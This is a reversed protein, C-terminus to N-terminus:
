PNPRRSTGLAPHAGFDGISCMRKEVDRELLALTLGRMNKSWKEDHATKKPPDIPHQLTGEDRDKLGTDRKSFPNKGRLFEYLCVGLSWWDCRKDYDKGSLM